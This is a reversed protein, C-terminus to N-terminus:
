DAGQYQEAAPKHGFPKAEAADAPLKRELEDRFILAEAVDKMSQRRQRSQRQLALYAQEESLGLDRQLIGKGREVLKRTELELLLNSNQSELRSIGIEAGLLLGICSLLKVELLSYRRPQRHQLCIVGVLQERALLPVAVFTEGPDTSWRPFPRFRSHKGNERSIDRSIAIPQRHRALFAACRKTPPISTHTLEEEDQHRAVWRVLRVGSQIYIFCADCDVRARALHSTAVLTEDLADGAAIHSGIEHVWEIDTKGQIQETHMVTM